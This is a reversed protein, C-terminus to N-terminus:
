RRGHPYFITKPKFSDKLKEAAEYLPELNPGTKPADLAKGTGIERRVGNDDITFGPNVLPANWRDNYEKRM